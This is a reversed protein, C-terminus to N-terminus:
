LLGRFLGGDVPITTGTIYGAADSALFAALSALESPNGIRGAPIMAIQDRKVEDITRNSQSARDKLLDSYRQTEIYGPAINNVTIGFQAVEDALTKAMGTVAARYSNSLLLRAVPQKVAISTVNVIRGWGREKMGPLFGRILRVASMLTRNWGREWHEEGLTEFSGPPPGGNNTVLIDISGCHENAYAIVQDISAKEDLDVPHTHVTVGFRDSLDRGLETLVQERRACLMLNCGEAALATAIAQGIGGSSGAIFACKNEIRYDM